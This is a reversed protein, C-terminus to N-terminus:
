ETVPLLAYGDVRPLTATRGANTAKTHRHVIDQRIDGGSHAFFVNEYSESRVRSSMWAQRAKAESRSRFSTDIGGDHLPVAGRNMKRFELM